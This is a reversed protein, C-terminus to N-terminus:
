VPLRKVEAAQYQKAWVPDALRAYEDAYRDLAPALETIISEAGPHTPHAGEEAVVERLVSPEDIIMCPRLLNPSFPQRSRIARFLSSNLIEILPKEKVNDMAFNVFVCPEADGNSNIHLYCRGGAICGGALPGDCWFDALLIPKEQRLRNVQKLKEIRQQPTPM